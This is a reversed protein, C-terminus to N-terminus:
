ERTPRDSLPYGDSLPKALEDAMEQSMEWLFGARPAACRWKLYEDFHRASVFYGVTVGTKRDTVRVPMSHAAFSWHDFKSAFESSSIKQIEKNDM